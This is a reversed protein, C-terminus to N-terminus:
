LFFVEFKKMKCKDTVSSTMRKSIKGRTTYERVTNDPIFVNCHLSKVDKVVINPDDMKIVRTAIANSRYWFITFGIVVKLDLLLGTWGTKRTQNYAITIDMGLAILTLLIETLGELIWHFLSYFSDQSFM